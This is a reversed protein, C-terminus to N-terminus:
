NNSSTYLSSYGFPLKNSLEILAKKANDVSKFNLSVGKKSPFLLSADHKPVYWRRIDVYPFKHTNFTVYVDRAIQHRLDAHHGKKLYDNYALQYDRLLCSLTQLADVPLSVGCTTPKDGVYKRIDIRKEGIICIHFV